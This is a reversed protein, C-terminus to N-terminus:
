LKKASSLISVVEAYEPYDIAKKEMDTPKSIGVRVEDITGTNNDFDVSWGYPPQASPCYYFESGVKVDQVKIRDGNLEKKVTGLSLGSSALVPGNGDVGLVFINDVGTKQVTTIKALALKDQSECGDFGVPSTSISAIISLNKGVSTIQYGVDYSDENSMTWGAPLNLSIGLEPLRTLSTDAEKTQPTTTDPSAEQESVILPEPDSVTNRSYVFRGAAAIVLVVVILAIMGIHAFGKQTVKM